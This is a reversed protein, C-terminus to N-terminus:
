CVTNNCSCSLSADIKATFEQLRSPQDAYFVVKDSSPNQDDCKDNIDVLVVHETNGRCTKDTETDGGFCVPLTAHAFNYLDLFPSRFSSELWQARSRAM